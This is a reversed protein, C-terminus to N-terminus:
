SFDVQVVLTYEVQTLPMTSANSKCVITHRIFYVVPPIFIVHIGVLVCQVRQWWWILRLVFGDIEPIPGIGRSPTKLIVRM